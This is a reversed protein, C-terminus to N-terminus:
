PKLAKAMNLHATVVPIMQDGFTKLAPVDSALVYHHLLDLADQHASVQTAAYATDFDAGTKNKLSDLSSQQDPKLTADPTIAPSLGAAVKKLKATSQTHATIMQQAFSKVAPAHAQTAALKSSEIEFADSAAVANAFDSGTMQAASTAPPVVASDTAAVDSAQANSDATNKHCAAIALAMAAVSAIRIYKM